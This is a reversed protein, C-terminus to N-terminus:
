RNAGGDVKSRAFCNRKTTRQIWARRIRLLAPHLQGYIPTMGRRVLRSSDQHVCVAIGLPWQPTHSLPKAVFRNVLPWQYPAVNALLAYM